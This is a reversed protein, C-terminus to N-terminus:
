LKMDVGYMYLVSYTTTQKGAILAFIYFHGKCGGAMSYVDKTSILVLKVYQGRLTVILLIKEDLPLSRPCKLHSCTLRRSLRFSSYIGNKDSGM